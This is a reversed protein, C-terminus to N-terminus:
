WTWDIMGDEFLCLVGGHESLTTLDQFMSLDAEQDLDEDWVLRVGCEKVEIEENEKFCFTVFKEAEELKWIMM